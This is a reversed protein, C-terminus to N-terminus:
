HYSGSVQQRNWEHGTCMEHYVQNNSNDFVKTPVYDMYAELDSREFLYHACEELNCYYFTQLETPASPMTITTSKWKPPGPMAKVMNYMAEAHLFSPRTPHNQM